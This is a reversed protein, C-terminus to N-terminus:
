LKFRTVLMLALHYKLLIRITHSRTKMKNKADSLEKIEKGNPPTIPHISTDRWLEYTSVRVGVAITNPHPTL